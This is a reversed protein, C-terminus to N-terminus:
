RRLVLARGAIELDRASRVELVQDCYPAYRPMASDGIGWQGRSEPCLWLLARAREKIARLSAESADHYNTRGDGLVVVTTRRDVDGLHRAVFTRLVRGYNSNDHVSVVGGGYAQGLAVTVSERAFLDTTEGLESVFVFSRTRDFLEHAAYVFELMFRAATRVSDSVDCLLILRPKERRRAKRAPVFPVGSTLLARRLTRHPDIRGRLARRARVRAGGRLREAFGRVARRVEEVEADSLSTFATTELRRGSAGTELEAAVDRHRQMVHERVDAATEDLEAKLAAFLLAAREEGLAGVLHARLALLAANAAPMGVKALVRYSVFGAQMRNQVDIETGVKALALLRDLEPGRALLAGLPAHGEADAGSARELLERLADLESAEFGRAALRNWLDGANQGTRTSFFREFATDFRKQDRARQVIVASLADRFADRDEFGVARAARAADIAQSTAITFGSRRMSWLLEDLVRTM